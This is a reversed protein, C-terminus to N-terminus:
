NSKVRAPRPMTWEGNAIEPEPLYYRAAVDFPGAPVELCNQDADECSLKFQFTFTGNEDRIATTNNIHYRDADNPHFRGTTTDYVTVSWFANVPPEETVLEYEGALGELTAGTNDTYMSEYASHSTAPGGWGERTGTAFNLYSVDKGPEQGPAAIMERYPVTKKAEQMRKDAEQVVQEDFGSLVDVVPFQSIAPGEITIGDFVALADDLDAPDNKDKVEIRVVVASLLSPVEVAEGSIKEPREGYYLTYRGAPQIINRYNANRDDQLQFSTFRKESPSASELVVPGEGLYLWAMRYVTDNNSRVVDDEGAKLLGRPTGIWTNLRAPDNGTQLVAYRYTEQYPFKKLYGEVQKEFHNNVPPNEQSFATIMLGCTLIALAQFLSKITPM